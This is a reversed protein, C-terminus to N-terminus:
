SRRRLLEELLDPLLQLLHVPRGPLLHDGVGDDDQHRHNEQGRQDEGHVQPEGLRDDLDEPRAALDGGKVRIVMSSGSATSRGGAVSGSVSSAASIWSAASEPSSAAWTASSSDPGTLAELSSAGM